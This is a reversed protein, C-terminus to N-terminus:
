LGGWSFTLDVKIMSIDDIVSGRRSGRGEVGVGGSEGM